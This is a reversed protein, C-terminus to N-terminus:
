VSVYAQTKKLQMLVMGEEENDEKGRPKMSKFGEGLDKSPHDKEWFSPM